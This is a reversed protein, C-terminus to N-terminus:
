RRKLPSGLYPHLFSIDEFQRREKAAEEEKLNAMSDLRAHLEQTM